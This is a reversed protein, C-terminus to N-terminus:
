LGLLGRLRALWRDLFRGGDAWHLRFNRTMGDESYAIETSSLHSTPAPAREIWCKWRLGGDAGFAARIESEGGQWSKWRYATLDAFAPGRRLAPMPPGDVDAGAFGILAEIEPETVGLKLAEFQQQTVARTPWLVVVLLLALALCIATAIARRLHKRM